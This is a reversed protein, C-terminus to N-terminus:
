LTLHLNPPPMFITLMLISGSGHLDGTGTRSRPIAPIDQSPRELLRRPRNTMAARTRKLRRLLGEIKSISEDFMGLTVEMKTSRALYLYVRGPPSNWPASSESKRAPAHFYICSCSCFDPVLRPHCGIPMLITAIPLLIRGRFAVEQMTIPCRGLFLPTKVCLCPATVTLAPVLYQTSLEIELPARALRRLHCYQGLNLGTGLFHREMWNPALSKCANGDSLTANVICYAKFRQCERQEIRIHKKSWVRQAQPKQRQPFTVSYCPAAPVSTSPGIRGEPRFIVPLWFLLPLTASSFTPSWPWGV